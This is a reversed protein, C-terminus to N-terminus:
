AVIITHLTSQNVTFILIFKLLFSFLGLSSNLPLRKRSFWDSLFYFILATDQLPKDSELNLTVASFMLLMLNLNHSFLFVDFLDDIRPFSLGLLFTEWSRNCLLWIPIHNCPLDSSILFCTLPLLIESLLYRRSFDLSEIPFATTETQNQQTIESISHWQNFLGM